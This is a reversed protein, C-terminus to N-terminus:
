SKQVRRQLDKLIERAVVIENYKENGAPLWVETFILYYKWAAM